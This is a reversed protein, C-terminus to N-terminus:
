DDDGDRHRGSGHDDSDNDGSGSGSNSTTTPAPATTTPTKARKPKPKAKKAPRSTRTVSAPALRDGARLPEGSLGIPQTSLNSAAVSLAVAVALGALALLIWGALRGSM